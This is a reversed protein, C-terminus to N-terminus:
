NTDRCKLLEKTSQTDWVTTGDRGMRPHKWYSYLERGKGDGEKETLRISGALM